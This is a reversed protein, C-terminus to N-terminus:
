TTGWSALMLAFGAMTLRLYEQSTGHRLIRWSPKKPMRQSFKPRFLRFDRYAFGQTRPYFKRTYVLVTNSDWNATWGTDKAPKDDPGYPVTILPAMAEVPRRVPAAVRERRSPQRRLLPRALLGGIVLPASSPATGNPATCACPAG